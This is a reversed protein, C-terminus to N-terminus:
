NTKKQLMQNQKEAREVAEHLRKAHAKVISEDHMPKNLEDKLANIHKSAEEQEKDIADHYAKAMNKFKEPMATKLKEHSIKASEINKEAEVAHMNHSEKSKSTGLIISNAHEKAKKYHAAIDKHLDERTQSFGTTGIFIMLSLLLIKSIINKM